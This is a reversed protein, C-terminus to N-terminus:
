RGDPGGGPPYRGQQYDKPDRGYRWGHLEAVAGQPPVFSDFIPRVKDAFEKQGKETLLLDIEVAFERYIYLRRYIMGNRGLSDTDFLHVSDLMAYGQPLMRQETYYRIMVSGNGGRLLYNVQETQGAENYKSGLKNYRATEPLMISWGMKGEAKTTLTSDYSRELAKADGVDAVYTQGVMTSLTGFVAALAICFFLRFKM